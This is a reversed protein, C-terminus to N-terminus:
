LLDSEVPPNAANEENVFETVYQGLRRGDDTQLTITASVHDSRRTEGRSAYSVAAVAGQVDAATAAPKSTTNAGALDSEVQRYRLLGDENYYKEYGYAAMREEQSVILGDKRLESEKAFLSQAQNWLDIATQISNTLVDWGGTALEVLQTKFPLVKEAFEARKAEYDAQAENAQITAENAERYGETMDALGQRALEQMVTNQRQTNTNATELRANFEDENTGAWNLVDAFVGTVEGAQITENISEALGDIPISDGYKAWAGTVQDILVMLKDQELGIAQLNAITTATAQPDALVGYLRNYAEATQETSYGAAQSSVELQGAVRRYEETADVVAILGEAIGKVGVGLAGGVLLGQLNDLGKNFRGLGDDADKAERGFEDLSKTTKDTSARAERLYRENDQLERGLKTLDTRARNLSQQYEDIKRPQDAYVEGVDELARELARVKEEQQRYQESLIRSKAELAEQSNAQGKFEETTLQMESKLTRLNSNVESLQRKFEQEGDLAISTSIM